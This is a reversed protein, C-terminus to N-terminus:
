NASFGPFVTRFARSQRDRLEDASALFRAIADAGLDPDLGSVDPRHDAFGAAFRTSVRFYQSACGPGTHRIEPPVAYQQTELFVAAHRLDLSLAAPHTPGPNRHKPGPLRANKM